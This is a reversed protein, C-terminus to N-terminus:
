NRRAIAHAPEGTGHRGPAYAVLRYGAAGLEAALEAETFRHLYNPALDDGLEVGPRRRIRRVVGAVAAVVYQPM